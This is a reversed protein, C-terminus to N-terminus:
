TWPYTRIFALPPKNEEGHVVKIKDMNRVIKFSEQKDTYVNRFNASFTGDPYQTTYPSGDFLELHFIGERYDIGILMVDICTKGNSYHISQFARFKSKCFEEWTM